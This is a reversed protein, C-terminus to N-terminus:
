QVMKPYMKGGILILVILMMALIMFDFGVGYSSPISKIMLSRLADIEYTLPNWKAVIQLWHPMIAVPYIANSAFFLPMIILQGIGMFKERTKVICAVITSLTAFIAALLFIFLIVGIMDFLIFNLKIQLLLALLYVVVVQSLSRVGASIAKGLIIATRPTPSVLVKHLIGLDREWIISLGYFIAIFLVSQALVGPALFAEYSQAGIAAMHVRAFVQGFIVLWLVPQVSRSIIEIPSRIIKLTEVAIIAVTNRFFALVM